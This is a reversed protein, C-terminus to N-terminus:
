IRPNFSPLAVDLPPLCRQETSEHRWTGCLLAAVQQGAGPQLQPLWPRGVGPCGPWVDVRPIARPAPKITRYPM